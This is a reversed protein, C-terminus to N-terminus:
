GHALRVWSVSLGSGDGLFSALTEHWRLDRLEGLQYLKGGEEVEHIARIADRPIVQINM